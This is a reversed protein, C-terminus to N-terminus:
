DAKKYSTFLMGALMMWWFGWFITLIFRAIAHTTKWFGIWFSSTVGYWNPLPKNFEDIAFFLAVISVIVLLIILILM